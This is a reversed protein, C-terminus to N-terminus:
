KQDGNRERERERAKGQIFATDACEATGLVCPLETAAQALAMLAAAAPPSLGSRSGFGQTAASDGTSPAVSSAAFCNQPVSLGVSGSVASNPVTRLPQRAIVAAAVLRAYEKGFTTSCRVPLRARGAPAAADRKRKGSGGGKDSADFRSQQSPLQPWCCGVQMGFQRTREFATEPLGMQVAPFFFFAFLRSIYVYIRLFPWGM